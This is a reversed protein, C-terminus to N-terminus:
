KVDRQRDTQRERERKRVRVKEREKEREVKLLRESIERETSSQQERVKM